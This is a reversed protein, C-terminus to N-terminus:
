VNNGKKFVMRVKKRLYVIIALVNRILTFFILVFFSLKLQEINLNGVLFIEDYFVSLTIIIYLSEPSCLQESFPVCICTSYMQTKLM